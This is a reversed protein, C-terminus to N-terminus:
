SANATKSPKQMARPQKKYSDLGVEPVRAMVDCARKCPRFTEELNELELSVPDQQLKSWQEEFRVQMPDFADEMVHWLSPRLPRREQNSMSDIRRQCAGNRRLAKRLGRFDSSTEKFARLSRGPDRRLNDFRRLFRLSCAGLGQFPGGPPRRVSFSKTKLM